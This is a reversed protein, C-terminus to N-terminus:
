RGAIIGEALSITEGAPTGDTGLVRVNRFGEPLRQYMVVQLRYAGRRLTRRPLEYYDGVMEGNTWRSTPYMGLVPHQNDQQAAVSGDQTLLRVSVSYDATPKQVAQWYLQLAVVDGSEPPSHSRHGREDFYAVATLRLGNELNVNVGLADQPVASAPADQIRTLPGSMTLRKGVAQPSVQTLYVPRGRNDALVAELDDLAYSMEVGPNIGEALQYYWFPTVQEWHGVVLADTELYPLSSLVLRQAALGRSLDARFRDLPQGATAAAAQISGWAEWALWALVAGALATRWLLARWPVRKARPYPDPDAPGQGRGIGMGSWPLAGRGRALAALLRALGDVGVAALAAAVPFTPLLYVVNLRQEGVNWAMTQVVNAALFLALAVVAKRRRAALVLVGLGVLLLVPPSFENALASLAMEFRISMEGPPVSFFSQSLPMALVLDWFGQWSGPRFQDFPAGAQSRLPLYLYTALPALGALAALGLSRVRQLVRWDVLLIFPLVAPGLYAASRHHALGLGLAFALGILWRDHHRTAIAAGGSAAATDFAPREEEWRLALWLALAPLLASASRVGAITSWLWFLPSVALVGAGALGALRSRTLTTGLLFTVAVASAGLVSSLLNMRYAISGLPLYTWLKGVLTYLPYGTHHPIGLVYPVFQFEGSDGGTASPALTAWYLFLAALFVGLAASGNGFVSGFRGKARPVPRTTRATSPAGQVVSTREEM